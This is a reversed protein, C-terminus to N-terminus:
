WIELGGATILEEGAAVFTDIEGVFIGFDERRDEFVQVLTVVVRTQFVVRLPLAPIKFITAVGVTGAFCHDM